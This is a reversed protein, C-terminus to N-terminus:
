VIISVLVWRQTTGFYRFTMIGFSSTATDSNTGPCIIRNAATSTTQHYATMAKAIGNNMITITRGGYGGTFGSIGFAATPGAVTYEDVGNTLAVNDNQGDVLTLTADTRVPLDAYTLARFTPTTAAGTAPGAFVYNATQNDLGIAQTSLDMLGTASAALTVANHHANATAAHVSIDVGDITVLPDVSMNGTLAVSGDAKLFAAAHVGDVTDSNLNTVVTTSAVTLPATGTVVDSEFTEARVEFAGVDWDGTLVRTGDTLLYQTHDDFGVLDALAHHSTAAVGSGGRVIGSTRIDILVGAPSGGSDTYDGKLTVIYYLPTVAGLYAGPFGAGAMNEADATAAAASAYEVSPKAQRVVIFKTTNIGGKDRLIGVLLKHYKGATIASGDAYTTINDVGAVTTENELVITGETVADSTRPENGVFRVYGATTSIKGGASLSAVIGSLWIPNYFLVNEKLNHLFEYAGDQSPYKTFYVVLTGAISTFRIIGMLFYEDVAPNTVPSTTSTVVTPLGAVDECYVYYTTPVAVDIANLALTGAAVTKYQSSLFCSFATWTFDVIRVAAPMTSSFTGVVQDFAYDDVMETVAEQTIARNYFIQTM